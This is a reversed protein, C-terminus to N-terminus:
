VYRRINLIRYMSASDERVECNGNYKKNLRCYPGGKAHIMRGNGIYLGVHDAYTDGGVTDFYILDGSLADHLDNGIYTGVKSQDNAVRPLDINYVTKYLYKVFGSCDFGPNGNGGWVYPVGIFVKALEGVASNTSNMSNALGEKRLKELKLYENYIKEDRELNQKTLVAMEKKEFNRNIQDLYIQELEKSREINYKEQNELYAMDKNYEMDSYNMSVKYIETPEKKSLITRSRANITNMYSNLSMSIIAIIIFYLTKRM